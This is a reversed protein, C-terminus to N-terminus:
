CAAALSRDRRWLRPLGIAGLVVLPSYFILGKGPSFLLGLVNLPATLYCPNPTGPTTPSGFRFWNYWAIAAIWGLLPLGIALM